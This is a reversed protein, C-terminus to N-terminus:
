SATTRRSSAATASPRTTPIHPDIYHAYLFFRREHNKELWALVERNMQSFDNEYNWNFQHRLLKMLLHGFHTGRICALTLTDEVPSDFYEDFGRDFAFVKKLNPNAV